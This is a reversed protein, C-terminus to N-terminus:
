IMYKVVFFYQFIKNNKLTVIASPLALKIINVTGVVVFHHLM